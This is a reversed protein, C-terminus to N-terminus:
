LGEFCGDCVRIEKENIGAGEYERQVQWLVCTWVRSLPTKEQGPYFCLPMEPMCGRRPM